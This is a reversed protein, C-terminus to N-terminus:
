GGGEMWLCRVYKDVSDESATSTDTDHDYSYHSDATQAAENTWYSACEGVLGDQWDCIDPYGGQEKYLSQLESVTPLRWADTGAHESDDCADYAAQWEFKGELPPNMWVATTDPQFWVTSWCHDLFCDRDGQCVGDAFCPEGEEGGHVCIEEICILQEQCEGGDMCPQGEDGAAVCLGEFCRHAGDCSEDEYCPQGISGAGICLDEVCIHGEHCTGGKLCPQGNHGAVVCFLKVCRLGEECNPPMPLCPQNAKGGPICVLDEDCLLGEFCTNDEFCLQDEHGREEIFMHCAAVCIVAAWLCIRVTCHM